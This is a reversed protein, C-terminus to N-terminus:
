ASTPAGQGAGRRAEDFAGADTRVNTGFASAFLSGITPM